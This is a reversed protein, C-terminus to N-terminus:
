RARRAARNPGANGLVQLVATGAEAVARRTAATLPGGRQNLGRRSVAAHDIKPRELLIRPSTPNANTLPRTSDM